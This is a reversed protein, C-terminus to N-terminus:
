LRWHSYTISRLSSWSLCNFPHFLAWESQHDSHVSPLLSLCVSMCISLHISPCNSPCVSLCCVFQSVSPCVSLCCVFQSVSPCVSLCCVFQSVSPCVPRGFFVSVPSVSQFIWWKLWYISKCQLTSHKGCHCNSHGVCHEVHWVLVRM